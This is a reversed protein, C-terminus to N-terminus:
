SFSCKKLKNDKVFSKRFSNTFFCKIHLSGQEAEFQKCRTTYPFNRPKLLLTLL